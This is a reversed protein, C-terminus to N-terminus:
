VLFASVLFSLFIGLKKRLFRLANLKHKKVTHISINLQEAVQQKDKGQVFLLHMVRRQELPLLQLAAYVMQIVETRTIQTLIYSETEEKIYYHYGRQGKLKRKQQQIYNLCSNKVAIYLIAKINTYTGFDPQKQWLKIFVEHVIDEADEKVKVLRSAFFVLSSYYQKFVNNVTILEAPITDSM